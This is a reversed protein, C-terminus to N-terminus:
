KQAFGLRERLLSRLREQIDPPIEEQAANKCLQITKKLSSVFESCEPCHLLHKEIKRCIDDNLEGDLYESIREFDKRCDERM